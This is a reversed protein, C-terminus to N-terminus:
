HHTPNSILEERLMPILKELIKICPALVEIQDQSYSKSGHFTNCRIAHIFELIAEAKKKEDCSTMKKLLIEDAQRDGVMDPAKLLVYFSGNELIDMLNNIASNTNITSTLNQIIIKPDLFKLLYRTAANTDPFNNKGPEPLKLRGDQWMKFTAEMYLKNYVVFLTFFKDFYSALDDQSLQIAEAKELWRDIFSEFSNIDLSLTM